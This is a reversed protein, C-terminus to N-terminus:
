EFHSAAPAWDYGDYEADSMSVSAYGEGAGAASTRSLPNWDNASPFTRKCYFLVFDDEDGGVAGLFFGLSETYFAALVKDSVPLFEEGATARTLGIRETRHVQRVM